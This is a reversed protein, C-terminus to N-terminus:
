KERLWEYFDSYNDLTKKKAEEETMKCCFRYNDYMYLILSLTEFILKESKM